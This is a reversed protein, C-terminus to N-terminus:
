EDAAASRLGEFNGSPDGFIVWLPLVLAAAFIVVVILPWGRRSRWYHLWAAVIAPQTVLSLWPLSSLPGNCADWWGVREGERLSCSTVWVFWSVIAGLGVAVALAGALLARSVSRRAGRHPTM